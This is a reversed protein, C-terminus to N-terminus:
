TESNALTEPPAKDSAVRLYGLLGILQGSKFHQKASEDDLIQAKSFLKGNAYVLVTGSEAIGPAIGVQVRSMTDGSESMQISGIRWVALETNKTGKRSLTGIRGRMGTYELPYEWRVIGDALTNSLEMIQEIMLAVFGSKTMGKTEGPELDLVERYKEERKTDKGEKIKKKLEDEANVL